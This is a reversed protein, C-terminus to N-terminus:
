VSHIKLGLKCVGITCSVEEEELDDEANSNLEPSSADEREGTFPNPPAPAKRKKKDRKRVISPDM